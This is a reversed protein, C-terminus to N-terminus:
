RYAIEWYVRYLFHASQATHICTEPLIYECPFIDATHQKKPQWFFFIACSFYTASLLREAVLWVYEILKLVGLWLQVWVSSLMSM